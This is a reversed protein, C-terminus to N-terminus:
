IDFVEIHDKIIASIFCGIDQYSNPVNDWFEWVEYSQKQICGCNPYKWCELDSPIIKWDFIDRSAQTIGIWFKYKNNSMLEQDAVSNLTWEDTDPWIVVIDVLENYWYPLYPRMDNNWWYKWFYALQFAEYNIEATENNVSQWHILICDNWHEPLNIHFWYEENRYDSCNWSQIVKTRYTYYNNSETTNTWDWWTNDIESNITTIGLENIEPENVIEPEDVEVLCSGNISCDDEIIESNEEVTKNCWTLLLSSIFLITLFWIKKM